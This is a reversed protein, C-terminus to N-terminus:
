KRVLSLPVRYGTEQEHPESPRGNELAAEIEFLANM